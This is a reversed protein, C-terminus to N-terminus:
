KNTQQQMTRINQIGSQKSDSEWPFDRGPISPDANKFTPPWKFSIM